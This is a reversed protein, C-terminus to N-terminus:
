SLWIKRSRLEMEGLMYYVLMEFLDDNRNNYRWEMEKLYLIFKHKSIGHYKILREKAFSWFGEVGNIYVKGDKFKYRHDINLHKYGSFMLSDYGRWKDTYVISGRRVKKVTENMLTEATVNKVIEVSVTGRRELIGFVITKGAAGRGRKGKRKGGFYSEDLKIEGKMIEDRKSLEEAIAKRLIDYAKLTTKYSIGMEASAKRASVSLEFLKILMLWKSASIKIEFFRTSKLPSFDNGCIKCRLRQRSMFYHVQCGCNPSSLDRFKNCLYQFSLREDSTIEVLEILNMINM